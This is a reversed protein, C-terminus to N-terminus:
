QMRLNFYCLKMDNKKNQIVNFVAFLGIINFEFSNKVALYKFHWYASFKM